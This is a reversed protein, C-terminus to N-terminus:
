IVALRQYKAIRAAVLRPFVYKCFEDPNIQNENKLGKDKLFGEVNEDFFKENYLLPKPSEEARKVLLKIQEDKAEFYHVKTTRLFKIIEDNSNDFDIIECISGTLDNLIFEYGLNFIQDAIEQLHLTAEREAEAYLRQRRLFESRDLGGLDKSGFKGLFNSVLSLDRVKVDTNIFVKNKRILQSFLGEGLGQLLDSIIHNKLLYQGIVYDVSYHFYKSPDQLTAYRTKGVGSMGVLSIINKQM